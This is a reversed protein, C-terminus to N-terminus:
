IQPTTKSVTIHQPLSSSTHVNEFKHYVGEDFIILALKGMKVFGHTLADLLVQHTSLVIRVNELVADWTSQDTWHDVNDKGSIAQICYGPLNSQFV